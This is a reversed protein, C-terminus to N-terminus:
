SRTNQGGEANISWRHVRRDAITLLLGKGVADDDVQLWRLTCLWNNDDSELYGSSYHIHSGCNPWHERQSRTFSWLALTLTLSLASEIQGRQSRTWLWSSTAAETRLRCDCDFDFGASALASAAASSEQGYIAQDLWLRDVGFSECCSEAAVASSTNLILNFKALGITLM